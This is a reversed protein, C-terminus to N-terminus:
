EEKAGDSQRPSRRLFYEEPNARYWDVLSGVGTDLDTFSRWGLQTAARSADLCSRLIDGPRASALRPRLTSGATRAILEYLNVVSTERGTGVNIVLGGGNDMARVLADVVDAVYVFDRTQKGDGYITSPRGTLCRETFISIVGSEAAGRQRPGYVNAFVLATYELDRSRRYVDLYDIAAKKSVGYPSSPVLASTEQIPLDIAADGYIAASAAFVIKAGGGNLAAELVRLTGGLNITLDEFPDEMSRAVDSRAALHFIVSPRRRKALEALAPSRVDMQHFSFQGHGGSRAQALNSLRGTSLDDVVDVGYGLLLLQDVLHSGIFGAGGTVLVRDM